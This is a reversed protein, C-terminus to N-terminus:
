TGRVSGGQGRQEYDACSVAILVVRLEEGQANRFISVLERRDGPALRVVLADYTREDGRAAEAGCKAVVAVVALAQGDSDRLDEIAEEHGPDVTVRVTRMSVGPLTPERWRGRREWIHHADTGGRPSPRRRGSFKIRLARGGARLHGGDVEESPSESVGCDAAGIQDDAACSARLPAMDGHRRAACM